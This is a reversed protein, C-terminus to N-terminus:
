SGSCFVPKKHVCVFMLGRFGRVGSGFITQLFGSYVLYRTGTQVGTRVRAFLAEWDSAACLCSGAPDPVRRVEALAGAQSALM